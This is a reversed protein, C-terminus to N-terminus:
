SIQSLPLRFRTFKKGHCSILQREKKSYKYPIVEGEVETKPPKDFYKKLALWHAAASNEAPNYCHLMKTGEAYRIGVYYNFLITTVFDEKGNKLIVVHRKDDDDGDYEICEIVVREGKHIGKATIKATVKSM